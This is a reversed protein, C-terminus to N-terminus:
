VAGRGGMEKKLRASLAEPDFPRGDYQNVFSTVNLGGREKLLRVFQGMQSQEVVTVPRNRWQKLEWVPFPELYLIQVVTADLGDARCAELVSSTTSGYTFLIQEGEGFVQVTEKEKLTEILADRKSARKDHMKVTWLPDEITIGREDHEYSNWKICQDSPPFLLPSVGNESAAYRAYPGDRHLLPEVWPVSELDFTANMRSESLHKETLLIGPTQFTWVLDLLEAALRFADEVSGPSAVIRPFEGHGASLAFDLDGQETYTPVGTAPGPRSSLVVLFPTEAMGALSFAETMLAFGGGSTGVMTRAGVSAAGLAMNAVAVESEPQVVVLGLEEDWNALCHLISSAPTMPYAFYANLGAACAGVAIAENGSWLSSSVTGRKLPFRRPLAEKTKEYVTKGYALNNDFDKGYESRFLDEMEQLPLHIAACLAAVAAVGVRMGPNPYERALTTMPLGVGEPFDGSGDEYVDGNYILLGGERLHEAHEQVSREDLAVMLHSKMYHSSIRDLATSVVSFNHGGRILSQYDDMQFVARGMRSFLVSAATGAKKVGQGAEGGVLFTFAEEQM